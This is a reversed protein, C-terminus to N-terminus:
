DTLHAWSEPHQRLFSEFSLADHGTLQPVADTVAAVEGAAIAQYSSVWGAVEFHPAGYHARSAFAEDMTEDQYRVQIGSVLSLTAAAQDLTIAEPGTLDYTSQHHEGSLLVQTVADAVDSHAVAAVAGDGAPGRIVGDPGCMLALGAQYFSDRLFTWQLGTQKILQETHWHDRGFTFTCDASAGQFSLYVIREIGATVAAEVATTHQALRHADERGSVLLLTQCGQMAASMSEGDAYSAPSSVEAGPLKPARAPDRVILRQDREHVALQTAVAGGVAGTAGTIAFTGVLASATSSPSAWNVMSSHSTLWPLM